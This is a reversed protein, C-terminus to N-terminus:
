NADKEPAPANSTTKKESEPTGLVAAKAAPTNEDEKGNKDASEDTDDSAKPAPQAAALAAVQRQLVLAIGALVLALVLYQGASSVYYSLVEALQEKVILQGATVAKAITSHALIGAYVAYAAWILAVVYLIISPINRKKFLSKM